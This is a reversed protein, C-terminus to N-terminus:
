GCLQLMHHVCITYHLFLVVLHCWVCFLELCICIANLSSLKVCMYCNVMIFSEDETNAERIDTKDGLAEYHTNDLELM